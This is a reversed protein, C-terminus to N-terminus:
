PAAEETPPGFIASGVRVINAGCEIAVEFDNSMGMSLIDFHDGGLGNSQIEELLEQCREFVPRVTEPDDTMPAMCMLGRPRLTMMTDIQEVLHGSAAPAVGFKTREGSTDVQILVEVPQERRAAAMQIEEALRLSDVSHVLRVLDVV